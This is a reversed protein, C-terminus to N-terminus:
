IIEGYENVELCYYEPNDVKELLTKLTKNDFKKLITNVEPKNVCGKCVTAVINKEVVQVLEQCVICPVKKDM